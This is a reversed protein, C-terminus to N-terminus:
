PVYSCRVNTLNFNRANIFRIKHIRVEKETADEQVGLIRYLDLKLIDVSGTPVSMTQWQLIHLYQNLHLKEIKVANLQYAHYVTWSSVRWIFCLVNVILFWFSYSARLDNQIEEVFVRSENKDVLQIKWEM